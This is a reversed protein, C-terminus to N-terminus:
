VPTRSGRSSALRAISSRPAGEAHICRKQTRLGMRIDFLMQACFEANERRAVGSHHM